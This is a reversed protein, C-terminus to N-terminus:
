GGQMPTLIEVAQGDLLPFTGFRNRPIVENDVAVAIWKHDRDILELLRAITLSDFELFNRIEGNIKLIM